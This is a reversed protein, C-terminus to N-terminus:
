INPGYFKHDQEQLIFRQTNHFRGYDYKPNYFWLINDDVGMEGRDFVASVAEKTLESPTDSWGIYQYEKKVESPTLGDRVCANYICQAVLIRGEIRQNGSEGEVICEVLKREQETLPYFPEPEPAVFVVAEIVVNRVLFLSAYSEIYLRHIPTAIPEVTEVANVKYTNIFLLLVIFLGIVTLFMCFKDNKNLM